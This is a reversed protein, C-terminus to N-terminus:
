PSPAFPSAAPQAQRNRFLKDLGMAPSDAHLALRPLASHKGDLGNSRTSCPSEMRQQNVQVLHTHFLFEDLGPLDFGPSIITWPKNHVPLLQTECEQHAQDAM